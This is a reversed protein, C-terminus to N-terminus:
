KAGGVEAGCRERGYREEAVAGRAQGYGPEEFQTPEHSTEGSCGSQSADGTGYYPVESDSTFDATRSMREFDSLPMPAPDRKHRRTLCLKRIQPTAESM